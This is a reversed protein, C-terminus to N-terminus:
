RGGRRNEAAAVEFLNSLRRLADVERQMGWYPAGGYPVAQDGEANFLMSEAAHLRSERCDEVRQVAEMAELRARLARWVVALNAADGVVVVTEREDDLLAAAYVLGRRLMKKFSM